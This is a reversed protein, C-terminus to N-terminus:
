GVIGCEVLGVILLIFVAAFAISKFQNKLYSFGKSDGRQQFYPGQESKYKRPKM